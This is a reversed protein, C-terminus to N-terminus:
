RDGNANRLDDDGDEKYIVLATNWVDIAQITPGCMQTPVWYNDYKIDIVIKDKIFENITNTLIDPGKFSFIKVKTM